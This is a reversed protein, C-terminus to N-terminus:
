PLLGRPKARYRKPWVLHARPRLGAARWVAMFSDVKHWGFFSV